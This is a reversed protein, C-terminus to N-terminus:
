DGQSPADGAYPRVWRADGALEIQFGTEGAHAYEAAHTREVVSVRGQPGFEVVTSSRTGYDASRIFIPSLMREREESVGTHPLESRPAEVCDGLLTFLRQRWVTQPQALVNRLEQKARRVKPWSTDLLANSIGYVGPELAFPEEGRNSYWWLGEPSGVILNFGNYRSARMSLDDLYAGPSADSRLFGSVLHGRSPADARHRAPERVNTLAAIRGRTSIGLWTGGQELDRGALVAPEDKWFELAASARRYFEDRNAAILLPCDAHMGYAFVILCM